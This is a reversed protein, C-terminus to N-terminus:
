IEGAANELFEVLFAMDESINSKKMGNKGIEIVSEGYFIKLGPENEKHLLYTIKGGSPIRFGAINGKIDVSEGPKANVLKRGNTLIEYIRSLDYDM